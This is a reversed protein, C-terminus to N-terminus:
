YDLYDMPNKLEGNVYVEFHLHIGTSFGTTGMLGLSEGKGVTQGPEVHIESLHAYITRMGNNHDVVVKNGYDGEFGASVVVGNDVNSITLSDPSAIDIGKHHDGWRPGQHSSIYGGDAPWQLSGTGKSPIEKTGELVIHNKVEKTVEENETSAATQEGNVETILETYVKEGEQGEQEVRSEGKFMGSDEKVEEEFDITEKVRSEKKVQVEVGPIKESARVMVGESLEGADPNLEDFTEEDMDYQELIDEKTEGEAVEHDVTSTTGALLKEVAEKPDSLQDPEVQTENQEGIGKLEIDTIRSDGPELEESLDEKEFRDLEKESVATLKLQRIAEQAAKENEVYAVSEDGLKVEYADTVFAAAEKAQDVLQQDTTQPNFVHEPILKLNHKVDGSVEEELEEEKKEAWATLDDPDTVVGVYEEGAYVHHVVTLGRSEASAETDFGWLATSLMVGAAFIKLSKGSYIFSRKLNNNKM